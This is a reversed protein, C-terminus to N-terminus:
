SKDTIVIGCGLYPWTPEYKAPLLRSYNFKIVLFVPILQIGIALKQFLPQPGLQSLFLQFHSVTVTKSTNTLEYRAPLLRLYNIQVVLLMPMLKIGMALTQFLLQPGLQFLFLQFHSVTVTKSTNTLEYRALLLRLYNIQVV